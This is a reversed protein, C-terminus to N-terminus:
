INRLDEVPPTHFEFPTTWHSQSHGLFNGWCKWINLFSLFCWVLLLSTHLSPMLIELQAKHIHFMPLPFPLCSLLTLRQSTTSSFAAQSIKALNCVTWWQRVVIVWIFTSGYMFKLFFGMWLGIAWLNSWIKVLIVWNVSFNENKVM